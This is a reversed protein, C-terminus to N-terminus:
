CNHWWVSSYDYNWYDITPSIVCDTAKKEVTYLGRHWTFFWYRKLM